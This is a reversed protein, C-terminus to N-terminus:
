ACKIFLWLRRRYPGRLLPRSERVLYQSGPDVCAMRTRLLRWRSDITSLFLKLCSVTFASGWMALFCLLLCVVRKLSPEALSNCRNRLKLLRVCSFTIVLMMIGHVPFPCPFWNGPAYAETPHKVPSSTVMWRCCVSTSGASTTGGREAVYFFFM